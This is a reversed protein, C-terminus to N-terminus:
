VVLMWEVIVMGVVNVLGQGLLGIIIEVGSIYGYELYGFMKFYLQCFQKLEFLLLDYGILYLLSYFLMLVYGNFLIFCDCDVWDFNQLNYKFFDNWLVEVIDVMGMLVGFYGFNVKQVVDM